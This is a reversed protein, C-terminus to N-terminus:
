EIVVQDVQKPFKTLPICGNSEVYVADEIRVGGFGPVYIGPEITFIMGKQTLDQNSSHVSPFEHIGLGIGHGLRHIFFEGYGENDIIKRAELDLEALTVGEKTRLIAAEEAQLVTEYIKRAEKEWPGIHFTRTMDSCYGELVIGFDILLLGKELKKNGPHGHPLASKEQNLVTTGFSMKEAGIKKAQFDIEAVLDFETMQRTFKALANKLIQDTYQAARQMKSLEEDDKVLRMQDLLPTLDSLVLDPIGKVFWEAREYTLVNKEILLTKMSGDALLGIVKSSVPEGDSYGLLKVESGIVQHASEYDLQPLILVWDQDKTWILGMFREHPNHLFGSLYYISEPHTILIAQDEKQIHSLFKKRRTDFVTM